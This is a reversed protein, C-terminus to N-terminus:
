TEDPEIIAGREEIARRYVYSYINLTSEGLIYQSGNRALVLMNALARSFFIVFHLRAQKGDAGNLNHAVDCM